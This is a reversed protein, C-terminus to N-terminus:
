PSLWPNKPDPLVEDEPRVHLFTTNQRELGRMSLMANAQLTM